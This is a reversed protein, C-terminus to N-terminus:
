LPDLTQFIVTVVATPVFTNSKGLFQLEDKFIGGSDATPDPPM